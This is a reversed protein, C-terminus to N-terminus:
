CARVRCLRVADGVVASLRATEPVALEWGREAVAHEFFPREEDTTTIVCPPTLDEVLGSVLEAATSREARANGRGTGADGSRDYLRDHLAPFSEPDTLVSTMWLHSVHSRRAGDM